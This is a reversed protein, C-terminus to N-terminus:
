QQEHILEGEHEPQRLQFLVEQRKSRAQLNESMRQVEVAGEGRRERLLDVKWVESGEEGYM